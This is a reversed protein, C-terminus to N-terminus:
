PQRLIRAPHIRSAALLPALAGITGALLAVLAGEIVASLPPLLPLLGASAFTRPDLRDLLTLAATAMPVGALAGAAAVITSEYLVMAAVRGRSWGVARLIALEHRRESVDVLFANAIGLAAVGLALLGLLRVFRHALALQGYSEVLEEAPIAEVEPIRAAIRALLDARDTGPATEVLAVNAAARLNFLPRAAALSMVAGHDLIARGSEFVGAVEFTRGRCEVRDGAALDLRAAAQRGILIARDPDDLGRGLGLGLRALRPSTPDLAFVLFYQSGLFRTKGLGLPTLEAVGPLAALSELQAGHLFSSWPSTAEAHQVVVDAGLFRGLGELQASFGQAAAVLAIYSACGLAVGSTLLATRRPRRLLSRIAARM